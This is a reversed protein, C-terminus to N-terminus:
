LGARNQQPQLRRILRYEWMLWDGLRRSRKVKIRISGPPVPGWPTRWSGLYPDREGYMAMNRYKFWYVRCRRSLETTSGVYAVVNNQYVVYVGPGKPFASRRRSVEIWYSM